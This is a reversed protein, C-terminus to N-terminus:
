AAVSRPAAMVRPPHCVRSPSVRSIATTSHVVQPTM